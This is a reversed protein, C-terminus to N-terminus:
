RAVPTVTAPPGNEPTIVAANELIGTADDDVKVVVSLIASSGAGLTALKWTVKNAPDNMCSKNCSVFSVRDDLTDTITVNTCPEAM